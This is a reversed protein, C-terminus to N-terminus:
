EPAVLLTAEESREGEPLRATVRLRYTGVPLEAPVALMPSQGTGDLSHRDGSITWAVETGDPAELRVQRELHDRVACTPRILHRPGAGDRALAEIMRALAEPDATRHQGLADWYQTQIGLQAAREANTDM